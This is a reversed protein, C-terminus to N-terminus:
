GQQSSRNSPTPFPLTWSMMALHDYAWFNILPIGRTSASQFEAPWPCTGNNWPVLYAVDALDWGMPATLAFVIAQNALDLNLYQNGWSLAEVKFRDLGSSAKTMWEAPLNVAANLRGGQAFPVNQGLYCVPNNVDNPYLLEFKANPYQALVASRIADVHAKLQGALFKSDAGNNITPDDDQCTFKYLARGLATQAAASTVADYYAMSGGLVQGTDSVWAGNAAVPITFHTDDTVTVPWTGNAATCGQVGTIVVRDGTQFGHPQALGISIPDTFACYGVSQPMSSFFWWLFEGFQLWPTLGAASQLGAMSTYASKQYATLNPVPACQSSLLNAFGTATAVPTGNAYRAQWTNATTGDDTPPNVLEMSFSTTVALGLAKASSFFDAHWQRIPFNIPNTAAPDIQWTGDVGISLSGTVAIKGAASTPTVVLTDGWNPTRTHITLQGAGSKQAWMSVSAANIYQVFHEAITDATDGTVVSKSMQFGASTPSAGINVTAVDGNAWTGGFTVIASNWTAGIRKRQNWWFVGLYENIQGGFGLKTVHWLLRQPSVKYTADTDFDLAPSVNPYTVMATSIDSPVAAELYDFVFSTNPVTDFTITLSHTGAPVSSRLLRRTVLEADVALECNLTTAADGDLSIEVVGRNSALSTGLYLEHVSQCSYQVTVSDGANSTVRGFGHWYNNAAVSAWGAGTFSCLTSDNGVRASNPGACQLARVSNPDTVSWNSVTASWETDAYVAGPALQPAFTLWAQRLRDIGLATFDLSVTWTVNDSNGGSLQLVNKDVGLTVNTAPRIIYTSVCNGDTGGYPALYTVTKGDVLSAATTLTLTQPNTVSAVTYPNGALYVTAGAALGTFKIGDVWTVLSGAITVHGTRANQLVLNGSSDSAALVSVSNQAFAAWNYANIGKALAQAVEAASEGGKASAFAFQANNVFLTLRDGATCGGPATIKYTGQAVSYNGSKLTAYDWLRVQATSEDERIVDLQAWDIWSYKASDIPQLGQYTVDFTLVMGSLNFDPLYRVTYHEFTNDADFLVLVCFDAMDRFVGCVAFGTPSTDCLSAAAGFGTFGRLYLTRDPQLKFIQETSM